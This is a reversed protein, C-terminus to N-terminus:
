DDSDLSDQIESFARRFQTETLKGGEWLEIAATLEARNLERCLSEIKKADLNYKNMLYETTSGCRLDTLFDKLIRDNLVRGGMGAHVDKAKIKKKAMAQGVYEKAFSLWHGRFPGTPAGVHGSLYLVTKVNSLFKIIDQEQVSTV